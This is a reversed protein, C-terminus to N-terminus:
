HKGWYTPSEGAPRNAMRAEQHNRQRVGSLSGVIAFHVVGLALLVVGVKMSLSEVASQLDRVQMGYKLALSIVGFNVLYFGVVLLHSLADAHEVQEEKGDLVFTRGNKRLTRGVWITVAGCLIAYAAYTWVTITM